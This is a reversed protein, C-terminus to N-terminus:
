TLPIQIITTTGSGRDSEIRMIGAVSHLRSEINMLGAGYFARNVLFGKGNDNVSLIVRDNELSLFILVQTACAHKVINNILEQVIRYVIIEINGTLRGDIGTVSFAYTEHGRKPNNDLLEQIATVLGYKELSYPLLQHSITRAEHCAKDIIGATEQIKISFPTSGSLASVTELNIKAASLIQVFSDHLDRAIRQQMEEQAMVIALLKQKEQQDQELTRKLRERRQIFFYTVGIFVLIFCGLASFFIEKARQQRIVQKQEAIIKENQQVEFKKNVEEVARAKEITFLSDKFHVSRKYHAFAANFDGKASDLQSMLQYLSRLGIAHNHAEAIKRGEDLTAQAKEFQATRLYCEALHLLVSELGSWSDLTRHLTLSENFVSSADNYQGRNFYLIGLSELVHAESAPLNLKEILALSQNLYREAEDYNGLTQYADSIFNLIGAISLAHREPILLKLAKQYHEIAQEPDKQELYINGINALTRASALSDHHANSISLSKVYYGIAKAYQQQRKENVGLRGYVSILIEEDINKLTIIENLIHTASDYKGLQSLVSALTSMAKARQNTEGTEIAIALSKQLFQQANQLHGRRSEISGLMLYSRYLEEKLQLAAAQVGAESAFTWAKAFSSRDHYFTASDNLTKCVSADNQSYLLRSYGVFLGFLLYRM